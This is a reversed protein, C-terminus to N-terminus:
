LVLCENLGWRKMKRMKMEINKRERERMMRERGGRLMARSIRKNDECTRGGWYVGVGGVKWIIIWIFKRQVSEIYKKKNSNDKVPAHEQGEGIVGGGFIGSRRRL